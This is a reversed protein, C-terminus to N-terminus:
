TCLFFKLKILCTTESNPYTDQRSTPYKKKTQIFESFFRYIQSNETLKYVLWLLVRIAEYNESFSKWQDLYLARECSM